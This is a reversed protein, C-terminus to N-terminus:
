ERLSNLSLSVGGTAGIIRYVLELSPIFIACCYTSALIAVTEVLRVAERKREQDKESLM